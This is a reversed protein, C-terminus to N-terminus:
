IDVDDEIIDTDNILCQNKNSNKNILDGTSSTTSTPLPLTSSIDTTNIRCIRKVKARHNKFWLRIHKSELKPFKTRYDGENLEHCIREILIHDPHTEISFWQELKPVESAPDIFIRNRRCRGYEYSPSATTKHSPNTTTGVSTPTTSPSHTIANKLSGNQPYNFLYQHNNNTNLSSSTPPLHFTFNSPSHAVNHPLPLQKIPDLQKREQQSDCSSSHERDDDDEDLFEEDDTGDQDYKSGRQQQTTDGDTLSIDFAQLYHLYNPEDRICNVQTSEKKFLVSPKNNLVLPQQQSNSGNLNTTQQEPTICFQKRVYSDTQSLWKISHKQLQPEVTQDKQVDSNTDNENFSSDSKNDEHFDPDEDIIFKTEDLEEPSLEDMEHDDIDDDDGDPKKLDIGSLHFNHDDNNNCDSFQDGFRRKKRKLAARANKFWYQINYPELPKKGKRCPLANLSECISAIQYRTPHKTDSFIQLLRPTEETPDFTTRERQRRNYAYDKVSSSSFHQRDALDANLVNNNGTATESSLLYNSSLFGSPTTTLLNVFTNLSASSPSSSTKTLPHQQKSTSSIRQERDKSISSLYSSKDVQHRHNNHPKNTMRKTTSNYQKKSLNLPLNDGNPSDGDNSTSTTCDPSNRTLCPNNITTPSCESKHNNSTALPIIRAQEEEKIVQCLKNVFENKENEDVNSSNSCLLQVLQRLLKMSKKEHYLERIDPNSYKSIKIKLVAINMLDGLIDQVTVSKNETVTAIPLPNWNKILIQGEVFDEKDIKGIDGEMTKLVVTVIDRFKTQAPVIVFGDQLVNKVDDKEVITHVPLYKNSLALGASLKDLRRSLMM